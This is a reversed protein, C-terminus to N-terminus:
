GTLESRPWRHLRAAVQGDPKFFSSSFFNPVPQVVQVRTRACGASATRTFDAHTLAFSESAIGRIHTQKKEHFHLTGSSFSLPRTMVSRPDRLFYTLFILPVGM